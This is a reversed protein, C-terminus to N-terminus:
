EETEMEDTKDELSVSNKINEKSVEGEEEENEDDEM